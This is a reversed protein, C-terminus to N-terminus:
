ETSATYLKPTKGMASARGKPSILGKMSNSHPIPRSRPTRVRRAQRPIPKILRASGRVARGGGADGSLRAYVIVALPFGGHWFM